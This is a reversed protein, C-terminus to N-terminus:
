VERQMYLVNLGGPEWNLATEVVKFGYAEYLARVQPVDFCDLSKAGLGIAHQLMWTGKGTAQNHLGLLEDGLVIFGGVPRNDEFAVMIHCHQEFFARERQKAALRTDTRNPYVKRYYEAIQICLEVGPALCEKIQQRRKEPGHRQALELSSLFTTLESKILIQM